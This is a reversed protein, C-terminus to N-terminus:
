LATDMTKITVSTGQMPETNIAIQLGAEKARWQMNDLGFGKGTGKVFGKGNDTISITIGATDDIFYEIKTAAAHKICNQVAEQMIKNLHLAQSANLIPNHQINETANFDIREFNQLVKFCYNKFGDNFDHLSIQKNNLVWITERLSNLISEANSQMKTIQENQGINSQLQQVNAILASTYAGMNDHLDRSIRQRETEEAKIIASNAKIQEETIAQQMQLKLKLQRRRYFSYTFGLLSAVGILGILYYSNTLRQKKIEADKKQTEYQINLEEIKTKVKENNTQEDLAKYTKYNALASDYMGVRMYFYHYSNYSDLIQKNSGMKTALELAQKIWNKGAEIRKEEAELNSLYFYTYPLTSMENIRIYIDRAYLLHKRALAYEKLHTKANGSENYSTAITSSDGSLLAYAIAKDFYKNAETFEEVERHIIGINSHVRSLRRNDNLETAIKIAKSHYAKAREYNKISVNCVGLATLSSYHLKLDGSNEAYAEAKIYHQMAEEYKARRRCLSGKLLELEATIKKGRENDEIFLAVSDALLDAADLLGKREKFAGMLRYFHAMENKINAKSALNLGNRLNIEAENATNEIQIVCMESLLRLKEQTATTKALLAGLSDVKFNQAHITILVVTSCFFSLLKKM